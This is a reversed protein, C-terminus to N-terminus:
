LLSKYCPILIIFLRVQSQSRIVRSGDANYIAHADEKLSHLTQSQAAKQETGGYISNDDQLLNHTNGEVAAGLMNYLM